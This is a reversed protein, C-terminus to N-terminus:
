RILVFLSGAEIDNRGCGTLRWYSLRKNPPSSALKPQSPPGICSRWLTSFDGEEIACVANHRSIERSQAEFSGFVKVKM